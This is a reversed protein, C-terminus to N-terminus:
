RLPHHCCCFAGGWTAAADHPIEIAEQGRKRLEEAIRHHQTDVACTKKDLVFLNAGSRKAKGVGVEIYDWDRISEPSESLIAEKCHL